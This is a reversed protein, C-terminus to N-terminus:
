SMSIVYGLLLHKEMLGLLEQCCGLAHLASKVADNDYTMNYLLRCCWEVVDGPHPPISSHRLLVQLPLAHPPLFHFRASRNFPLYALSARNDSDTVKMVANCAGLSRFRTQNRPVDCLFKMAKLCNVLAESDASIDAGPDVEKDLYPQLISSVIECFGAEGMKECNSAETSLLFIVHMGRWVVDSNNALPALLNSLLPIGQSSRGLAKRCELGHSPSSLVRILCHLCSFVLQENGAFNLGPFLRENVLKLASVASSVTSAKDIDEITMNKYNKEFGMSTSLKRLGSFISSSSSSSSSAGEKEGASM